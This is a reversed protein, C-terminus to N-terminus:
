FQRVVKKPNLRILEWIYFLALLTHRTETRPLIPHRNEPKGAHKAPYGRQLALTLSFGPRWFPAPGLGKAREPSKRCGAVTSMAQHRFSLQRVVGIM